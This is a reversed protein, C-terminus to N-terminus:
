AGKQTQVVGIERIFIVCSARKAVGFVTKFLMGLDLLFFWINLLFFVCCVDCLVMIGSFITRSRM